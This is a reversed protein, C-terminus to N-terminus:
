ERPGELFRRVEEALDTVGLGDFIALARLAESKAEEFRKRKFLVHAGYYAASGLMLMDDQALSKLHEIHTQAESLKGEETYLGALSLHTRSLEGHSNLSSAIRLTEELHHIAKEANGKFRHIRGLAKHCECLGYQDRNEFLGMAHTAAEEAADLQKVEVLLSALTLLCHAQQRTKGHRGFIYYAERVQLIGEERFDLMRNACSLIVLTTAVRHDNGSERLLGLNQILIRKEEVHNGVGGLLGALSELCDPKSPHSDPLAEIKSRLIVHRPKHWRLHHMFKACADWVDKSDAGISTFVDLLHEINVDESVIWQTEDFGPEGPLLGVSLRRFYHDKATCLLPSATPDKPRLHDRLPALMTVFGHGRYTLSLNCFTDFVRPGDPITPFLGEISDEHVGQPFFAVAGLVERANPGLEQFMASALSLEVTTALSGLNRARLVGTRQRAWETTLRKTDWRNQQSVTALLTISLPHFDLEKLIENIEDSQEGFRYIRYFTEHGAETSLTPIEIIECHPPLTNSIRSTIILCINSFQSLEDVISYMEQSNAEAMGLISEANDLVM